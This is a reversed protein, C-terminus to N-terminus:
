QTGAPSYVVTGFVTPLKLSVLVSIFISMCYLFYVCFYKYKFVNTFWHLAIHINLINNYHCFGASDVLSQRVLDERTPLGQIGLHVQVYCFLFQLSINLISSCRPLPVYSPRM